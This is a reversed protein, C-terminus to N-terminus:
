SKSEVPALPELRQFTHQRQSIITRTRPTGSDMDVIEVRYRVTTQPEEIWAQTARNWRAQMRKVFKVEVIKGETIQPGYYRQGNFQVYGNRIFRVREGLDFVDIQM